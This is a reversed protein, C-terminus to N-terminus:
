GTALLLIFPEPDFLNQKAFNTRRACSPLLRDGAEPVFRLQGKTPFSSFFSYAPPPLQHPPHHTIRYLSQHTQHELRMGPMPDRNALLGGIDHSCVDFDYRRVCHLVFDIFVTTKQFHIAGLPEGIVTGHVISENRLRVAAVSHCPAKKRPPLPFSLAAIPHREGHTTN